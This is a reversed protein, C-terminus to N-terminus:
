KWRNHTWIWQYPNKVIMKEVVKNLEESLELKNKFSTPNIRKQFEINFSNNTNREIFVPIIDMEFKSSLQAPLTTTLAPEKFFNIKEGESVRQDIMLAISNNNNIHEITKKVGKIGKKIQNKCIYKKRLYEMFPNLFINNLPRYITALPINKKTIEMSMLEFNAFHGSIFIVPKKDIHIKQLDANDKITIINNNKKFYDLFVYEIFTMGYNKWMNKIIKEKDPNTVVKSFFTLNKLIIKKSKFFSGLSLFLFAFIKRSLNLGLIRAIIFCIYVLISQLFYIIHKIM